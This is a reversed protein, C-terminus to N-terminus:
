NDAVGRTYWVQQAVPIELSRNYKRIKSMVAVASELRSGNIRAYTHLDQVYKREFAQAAKGSKDKIHHGISTINPVPMSYYRKYFKSYSAFNPVVYSIHGLEHYLLQLVNPGMWVSVAVSQGGYESCNADEDLRSSFISTTGELQIIALNKPIVKVFIDTPRNKKDVVTDMQKYIDPSLIELQAILAETLEHYSLYDILAKVKERASRKEEYSLIEEFLKARFYQLSDKTQQLKNEYGNRIKALLGTFPLMFLVLLVFSTKM